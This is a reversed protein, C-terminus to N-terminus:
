LRRGSAAMSKESSSVKTAFVAARVTVKPAVTSVPALPDVYARQFRTGLPTPATYDSDYLGMAPFTPDNALLFFARGVVPYYSPAANAIVTEFWAFYASASAFFGGNLANVLAPGGWESFFLPAVIPATTGSCGNALGQPGVLAGRWYTGNQYPALPNGTLYPHIDLGDVLSWNFGLKQIDCFWKAMPADGVFAGAYIEVKPNCERIMPVVVALLKAMAREQGAETLIGGNYAGNMENWITVARLAPINAGSVVWCAWKAFGAIQAPTVPFSQQGACRYATLTSCGFLTVVNTLGAQAVEAYLAANRDPVAYVGASIETKAWGMIDRVADGPNSMALLQAPPPLGDGENVQVAVGGQVIYPFASAPDALFLAACFSYFKFLLKM